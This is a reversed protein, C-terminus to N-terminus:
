PSKEHPEESAMLTEDSERKRLAGSCARSCCRNGSKLQVESLPKNCVPCLVEVRPEDSSDVPEWCEVMHMPYHRPTDGNIRAVIHPSGCFIEMSLALGEDENPRGVPLTTIMDYANRPSRVNKVFQVQAVPIKM